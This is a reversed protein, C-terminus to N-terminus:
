QNIVFDAVEIRPSRYFEGDVPKGLAWLMQITEGDEAILNHFKKYYEEVEKYEQLGQSLPLLSGGQYLIEMWLGQMNRGSNFQDSPTNGKTKMSILVTSPELAKNFMKISQKTYSKPTGPFLQCIFEVFGVKNKTFNSLLTIGYPTKERAKKGYVTNVFSEMLTPEFEMEIKFSERAFTKLEEVESSDYHFSVKVNSDSYRQELVKAHNRPYDMSGVAYKVTATAIADTFVYDAQENKFDEGLEVLTWTFLPENEILEKSWEDPGIWEIILAKGKEMASIRAVESFAGLSLILQRSIPDTEPLLRGSDLSGIIKTDSVADIKWSQVNHANQAWRADELIEGWLGPYSVQSDGKSVVACSLVTLLVTMIIMKGVM